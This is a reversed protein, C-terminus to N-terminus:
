RQFPGQVIGQKPVGGADMGGPALSGAPMGTFINVGAMECTPEEGDFHHVTLICTDQPATSYRNQVRQHLVTFDQSIPADFVLEALIETDKILPIPKWFYKGGDIGGVFALYAGAANRRAVAGDDAVWTYYEEARDQVKRFDDGDITVRYTARALVALDAPTFGDTTAPFLKLMTGVWVLSDCPRISIEDDLLTVITNTVVSTAVVTDTQDEEREFVMPYCKEAALDTLAIMPPASFVRTTHM